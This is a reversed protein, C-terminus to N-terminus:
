CVSSCISKVQEFHFGAAVSGSVVVCYPSDEGEVARHCFETKGQEININGTIRGVPNAHLAIEATRRDAQRGALYSSSASHTHQFGIQKFSRSSNIIGSIRAVNGDPKAVGDVLQGNREGRNDRCIPSPINLPNPDAIDTPTLLRRKQGRIADPYEIPQSKCVVVGARGRVRHFIHVQLDTFIIGKAYSGARSKHDVVVKGRLTSVPTEPRNSHISSGRILIHIVDDGEALRNALEAKGDKINILVVSLPRRAQGELVPDANM